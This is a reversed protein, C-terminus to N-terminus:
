NWRHFFVDCIEAIVPLTLNTERSMLGYGLRAGDLYLPIQYERCVQAIETLEQRSYLTGYETPHSLYVMGPFVMHDHSVYKRRKKICIGKLCINGQM